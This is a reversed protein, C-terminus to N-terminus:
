KENMEIWQKIKLLENQHWKIADEGMLLKDCVGLEYLAQFFGPRPIDGKKQVVLAAFVPQNRANDRTISQELLATVQAIIPSTTVGLKEAFAQYSMCELNRANQRLLQEAATTLDTVKEAGSM